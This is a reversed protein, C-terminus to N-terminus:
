NRESLWKAIGPGLLAQSKGGVFVGVHGGPLPLETYDKTGV